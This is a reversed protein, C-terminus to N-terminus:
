SQSRRRQRLVRRQEPPERRLLGAQFIVGVIVLGVFVILDFPPTLALAQTILNAGVLSSLIILAPDFLALVLVAGILGGIIFILWYWQGPDIGFALLLSLLVYGGFIFGALAIAIEQIVVALIAGIIGVGLAVLLVLWDPQGPLFQPTLILGLVFGAVAVFLWFLKRGLLLVVLGILINAIAAPTM